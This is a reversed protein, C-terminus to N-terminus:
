LTSYAKHLYPEEGMESFLYLADVHATNQANKVRGGGGIYLKTGLKLFFKQIRDQKQRALQIAMPRITTM